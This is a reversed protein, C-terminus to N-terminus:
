GNNLDETNSLRRMAADFFFLPATEEQLLLHLCTAVVWIAQQWSPERQGAGCRVAAWVQHPSALGWRTGHERKGGCWIPRPGPRSAGDCRPRPSLAPVPPTSVETWPFQRLVPQCCWKCLRRETEWNGSLKGPYACLFFNNPELPFNHGLFWHKELPAGVGGRVGGVM